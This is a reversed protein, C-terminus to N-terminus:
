HHQAGLHRAADLRDTKAIALRHAAARRQDFEVGGHLAGLQLLRAGAQRQGFGIKATRLVQEPALEDALAAEVVRAGPEIHRAGTQRQGLRAQRAHLDAGREIAHDADAAHTRAVEDLIAIRQDVELVDGRELHVEAQGLTVEVPHARPLHELERAVHQWAFDM